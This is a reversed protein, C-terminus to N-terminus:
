RKGSRKGSHRRVSRSRKSRYRKGGRSGKKGKRKSGRRRRRKGGGADLAAVPGGAQAAALGLLEGQQVLTLKDKDSLHCAPHNHMGDVAAAQHDDITLTNHHGRDYFKEKWLVATAIDSPIQDPQPHLLARLGSTDCESICRACMQKLKNIAGGAAAM